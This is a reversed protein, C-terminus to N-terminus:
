LLPSLPIFYRDEHNRRIRRATNPDFASTDPPPPPEGKSPDRLAKYSVRRRVGCGPCRNVGRSPNRPRWTHGCARCHGRLTRAAMVEEREVAQVDQEEVAQLSRVCRGGVKSPAIGRCRRNENM